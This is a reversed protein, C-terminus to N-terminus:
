MAEVEQEYIKRNGLEGWAPTFSDTENSQWPPERGQFLFGEGMEQFGEGKM